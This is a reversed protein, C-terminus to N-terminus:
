QINKRILLGWIAFIRFNMITFLYFKISFKIYIYIYVIKTIDKSFKPFRLSLIDPVDPNILNLCCIKYYFEKSIITRNNINLELSLGNTRWPNEVFTIKLCLLNKMTTKSFHILLYIAWVHSKLSFLLSIRLKVSVCLHTSSIYYEESNLQKDQSFRNECVDTQFQVYFAFHLRKVDLWLFNGMYGSVNPLLHCFITEPIGLTM